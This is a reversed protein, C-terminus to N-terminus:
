KMLMAISGLSMGGGGNGGIASRVSNPANICFIALAVAGVIFDIGPLLGTANVQITGLYSNTLFGFAVGIWITQAVVSIFNKLYSKFVDMTSEGSFTSFFIPSVGVLVAIEIQRIVLMVLAIIIALGIFILFWTCKLLNCILTMVSIGDINTNQYQIYQHRNSAGISNFVINVISNNINIIMSCITYSQDILTKGFVFLLLSKYLQKEEMMEFYMSKKVVSILFFLSLLSYAIPKLGNWLTKAIAFQSSNINDKTLKEQFTVMISNTQDISSKIGNNLAEKIPKFLGNLMSDLIKGPLGKIESQVGDVKNGVNNVSNNLGNMSNNIGNVSDIVGSNDFIIPPYNPNQTSDYTPNQNPAAISENSTVYLVGFIVYANILIFALISFFVLFKKLNFRKRRM